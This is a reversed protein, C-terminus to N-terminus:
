HHLISLQLRKGMAQNRGDWEVLCYVVRLIYQLLSCIIVFKRIVSTFDPNLLTLSRRPLVPNPESTLGLAGRPRM